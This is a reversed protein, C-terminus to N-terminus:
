SGSIASLKRYLDQALKSCHRLYCTCGAVYTALLKWFRSGYILSHLLGQFTCILFESTRASDKRKM